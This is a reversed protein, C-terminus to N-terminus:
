LASVICLHIVMFLYRLHVFHCEGLCKFPYLFVSSHHYTVLLLEPIFNKCCTLSYSKIGHLRQIWRGKTMYLCGTM